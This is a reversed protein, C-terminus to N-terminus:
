ICRPGSTIEDVCAHGIIQAKPKTMVKEYRHAHMAQRRRLNNWVPDAVILEDILKQSEHQPSDTDGIYSDLAVAMKFIQIIFCAM